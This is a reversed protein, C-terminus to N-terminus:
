SPNPITCDIGIATLEGGVIALEGTAIVDSQPDPYKTQKIMLRGNDLYLAYDYYMRGSLEYLKGKAYDCAVVREDIIGSGISVTACLEPLGDGTLDAFYVNWVPMGSFLIKDGGSDVAKVESPTWQFVTDPYEPLELELSGSWPIQEDFYYDLWKRPEYASVSSSTSVSVYQTGKDAFLPVTASQFVLTSDDAVTFRAIVEGNKVGFAKESEETKISAYILLEGDSFTYTCNPLMYSSIPPTVLWATGDSYLNISLLRKFKQIETPNNLSYTKAPAESPIAFEYTKQKPANKDIVFDAWVTHKEPAEGEIKHHYIDTIIRYLGEDLKVALMEPRIDYNISSGNELLYVFDNFGTGDVFPVIKWTDGVQKVLTFYTGCTLGQINQNNMLQASIVIYEPNYPTDNCKFFVQEFNEDLLNYAEWDDMNIADSVRNAAFGISLVIVLAAAVFIIVQSPKRFNLVNKIRENLITLFLKDMSM